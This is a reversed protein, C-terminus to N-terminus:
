CMIVKLSFWYMTLREYSPRIEPLSKSQQRGSSEQCLPAVAEEGEAVELTEDFETLIRTAGGCGCGCAEGCTLPLDAEGAPCAALIAVLEALSPSDAM